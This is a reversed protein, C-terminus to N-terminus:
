PVRRLITLSRPELKWVSNTKGDTGGDAVWADRTSVKTATMGFNALVLWLSRNALATAVVDKSPEQAFLLSERIDIYAWTGEEVMPLYRKLWRAYLSKNEQTGGTKASRSVPFHLYPIANLYLEEESKLTFGRSFEPIVFPEYDRTSQRLFEIDLVAEGVWLHDYVKLPTRIRDVGEKHLKYVGGRRKIEAYILALM